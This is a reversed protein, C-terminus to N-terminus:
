MFVQYTSCWHPDGRTEEQNDVGYFITVEHAMLGCIWDGANDTLQSYSLTTWTWPLAVGISICSSCRMEYQRTERSNTLVLAM